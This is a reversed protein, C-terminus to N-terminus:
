ANCVSASYRARVAARNDLLFQGFPRCKASVLHMTMLPTSDLQVFLAWEDDQTQQLQEHTRFLLQEREHNRSEACGCM